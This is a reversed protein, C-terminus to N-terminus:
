GVPRPAPVVTLMGLGVRNPARRRIAIEKTEERRLQEIISDAL